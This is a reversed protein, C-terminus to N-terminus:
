GEPIFYAVVDYHNFFFCGIMLVALDGISKIFSMLSTFFSVRSMAKYYFAAIDEPYFFFLVIALMTVCMKTHIVLNCCMKLGSQAETFALGRLRFLCDFRIEGFLSPM